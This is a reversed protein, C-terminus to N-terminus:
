EEPWYNNLSGLIRMAEDRSSGCFEPEAKFDTCVKPKGAADYIACRYDKMLHICRIGAPKGGPMGPISSSISIAICCAGCGERCDM